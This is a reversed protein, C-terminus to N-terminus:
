HHLEWQFSHANWNIEILAADSTDDCRQSQTSASAQHLRVKFDGTYGHVYVRATYQSLSFRM